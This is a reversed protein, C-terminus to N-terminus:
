REDTEMLWALVAIMGAWIMFLAAPFLPIGLITIDKDWLALLPFNLLACGFTFLAVLRASTMGRLM